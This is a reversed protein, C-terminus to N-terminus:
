KVEERVLAWYSRNISIYFEESQPVFDRYMEAGRM